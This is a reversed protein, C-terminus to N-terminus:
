LAANTRAVRVQCILLDGALMQPHDARGNTEDGRKLVGNTAAVWRRLGYLLTQILIAMAGRDFMTNGTACGM